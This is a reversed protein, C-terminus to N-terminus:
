ESDNNRVKLSWESSRNNSNLSGIQPTVVEITFEDETDTDEAEVLHLRNIKLSKKEQM